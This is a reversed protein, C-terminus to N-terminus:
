NTTKYKKLYNDIFYNNCLSLFILSSLIHQKRFKWGGTCILEDGLYLIILYLIIVKNVLNSRTRFGGFYFLAKSIEHFIWLSTDFIERTEELEIILMAVVSGGMPRPGTWTNLNLRIFYYSWVTFIGSSLCRMCVFSKLRPHAWARRKQFYM